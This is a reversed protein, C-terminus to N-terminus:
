IAVSLRVSLERGENRDLMASAFGTSAGSLHAPFSQLILYSFM